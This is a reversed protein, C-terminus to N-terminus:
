LDCTMEDPGYMNLVTSGPLCYTSTRLGLQSAAVSGSRLASGSSISTWSLCFWSSM